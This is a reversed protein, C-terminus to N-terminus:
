YPSEELLSCGCDVPLVIGTASTCAALFMVADAVDNPSVPRKLPLATKMKIMKNDHCSDPPIMPGPAVANVRYAPAFRKAYLVTAEALHTKAVLYPTSQQNKKCLIAADLINIASAGAPANKAHHEMLRCPTIYNVTELKRQVGPTINDTRIWMSANNILIDIPPLSDLMTIAETPDALNCSVSVHKQGQDCPLEHVLQEAANSSTHYHVIIEAGQKAFLRCLVAGFRIAGGTILVRKGSACSIM